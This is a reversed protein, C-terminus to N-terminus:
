DQGLTHGPRTRSGFRRFMTRARGPIDKLKQMADWRRYNRAMREIHHRAEAESEYIGLDCWFRVLRSSANSTLRPYASRHVAFFGAGDRTAREVLREVDADTAQGPWITVATQPVDRVRSEYNPQTKRVWASYLFFETLDNALFEEEFSRESRTQIDDLMSRVLKTDLPFPTTTASFSSLDVGGLGVYELVHELSPRLPHRIFSYAPVKSVGNEGVYDGLEFDRILHNKADLVVYHSTQIRRALALKLIQQSRWGTSSPVYTIDRPRLIEVRPWVRGYASGLKRVNGASLGRSTNDIVIVSTVSDDQLFRAFSRAQHVLLDVEAEYVTTALSIRM